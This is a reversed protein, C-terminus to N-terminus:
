RGAPIGEVAVRALDDGEALGTIAGQEAERALAWARISALGSFRLARRIVQLADDVRDCNAVLNASDTDWIRYIM